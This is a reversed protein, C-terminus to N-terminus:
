YVLGALRARWVSMEQTRLAVGARRGNKCHGLRVVDFELNDLRLRDLSKRCLIQLEVLESLDWCEDPSITVGEVFSNGDSNVTHPLFQRKRSAEM